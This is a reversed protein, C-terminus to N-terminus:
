FNSRDCLPANGFGEIEVGQMESVKVCTSADVFDRSAQLLITKM